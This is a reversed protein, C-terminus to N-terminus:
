DPQHLLLTQNHRHRTIAYVIRRGQLTGVYARGHALISCFGGLFCSFHYESVIIECRDGMRYFLLTDPYQAKIGLFQQMMPTHGSEACASSM